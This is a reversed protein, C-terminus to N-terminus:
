KYHIIRISKNRIVDSTLFNVICSPCDESKNFYIERLEMFHMAIHEIIAKSIRKLILVRVRPVAELFPLIMTLTNYDWGLKLETINLNTGLNMDSSDGIGDLYVVRVMSMQFVKSLVRGNVGVLGKRFRISELNENQSDLFDLFKNEIDRTMASIGIVFNKLKFRFCNREYLEFLSGINWIKLTELNKNNKLCRFVSKSDSFHKHKLNLRKLRTCSRLFLEDAQQSTSNLQLRELRPFFHQITEVPANDVNILQLDVLWPSFVKLLQFTKQSVIEDNHANLVMNKYRRLTKEFCSMTRITDEATETQWWNNWGLRILQMCNSSRGITQYWSKCTESASTVDAAELHQFIHEHVYEHLYAFPDFCAESPPLKQPLAPELAHFM